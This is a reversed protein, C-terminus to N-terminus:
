KLMREARQAKAVANSWVLKKDDASVHETVFILGAKHTSINDEYFLKMPMISNSAVMEFSADNGTMQDLAAPISLSLNTRDVRATMTKILDRVMTTESLVGLSPRCGFLLMLNERSVDSAATNGRMGAESSRTAEIEKELAIDLESKVTASASVSDNKQDKTGKPYYGEKKEYRERCCAFIGIHYSNKLSKAMVRLKEEAAFMKYYGRNKCWENHLLYQTGSEQVGHGAFTHIM